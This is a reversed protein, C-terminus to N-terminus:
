GADENIERQQVAELGKRLAAAFASITRNDHRLSATLVPDNPDNVHRALYVIRVMPSDTRELRDFTRRFAQRGDETRPLMRAVWAQRLADLQPFADNITESIRQRTSPEDLVPLAHILRALARMQEPANAQAAADIWRDLTAEELARSRVAISRIRDTDGEPRATFGGSPTPQPGLIATVNLVVTEYPRQMLLAGLEGQDLRVETSVAEGVDLRLRRGINVVVPEPQALPEGNVTPTVSLLVRQPIGQGTGFTLPIHSTNRVTLTAHISELYRATTPQVALTLEAWPSVALAPQWLHGPQQDMRAVLARGLRTPAAPQGMARLRQAALLGALSNPSREVVQELLERQDGPTKALEALGLLAFPDHEAQETMAERAADHRGRRLALWARLRPLRDAASNDAESLQEVIEAAADPERNFLLQAWALDARAQSTQATPADHETRSQEIRQNLQEHLLRYSNAGREGETSGTHLVALRLMELEVPLAADAAAGEGNGNTNRSSAELEGLMSLAQGQQGAAALALAWDAYADISLNQRTLTAATEYQSAAQTYAAQSLLVRALALRAQPDAPAAVVHNIAASGVQAMNVGRQMALRYTMAAAEPNAADLALAQSLWHTFADPRGLEDAAQAAYTALRSRLPRSFQRGSRSRLMNEARALRQDLTQMTRLHSQILRWQGADDEPRLAVYRNLAHRHGPADDMREALETRLAWYAANDPSLALAMDLLTRARQLQDPRPQPQQSADDALSASMLLTLQHAMMDRAEASATRAAEPVATSEGPQGHAPKLIITMLWAIVIFAALRHPHIPRTARRELM